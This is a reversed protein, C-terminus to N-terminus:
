TYNYSNQNDYRGLYIAIGGVWGGLKDDPFHSAAKYNHVFNFVNQIPVRIEQFDFIIFSLPCGALITTGQWEKEVAVSM